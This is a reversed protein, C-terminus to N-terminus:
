GAAREHGLQRFVEAMFREVRGGPSDVSGFWLTADSQRVNAETVPAPPM